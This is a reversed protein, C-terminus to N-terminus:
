HRHDHAPGHGGRKLMQQLTPDSEKDGLDAFEIIEYDNKLGFPWPSHDLLQISTLKITSVHKDRTERVLAPVQEADLWLVEFKSGSVDGEYRIATRDLVKEEGIRKLNKAIFEPSIVSRLRDWEPTSKAITLDTPQYEIARREPHFVRYYTIEGRANRNWAEGDKDGVEQTEVEAESRWLRWVRKKPESADGQEIITEFECAIAPANQEAAHPEEARALLPLFAAVIWTIYKM